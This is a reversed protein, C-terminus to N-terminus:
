VQSLALIAGFSMFIPTLAYREFPYRFGSEFSLKPSTWLLSYKWGQNSLRSSPWFVELDWLFIHGHKDRLHTGLDAKLVWNQSLWCFNINEVNTKGVKVSPWFLEYDWLFLHGHNDRLHNGLDAKLVWNQSLRCFHMNEVKTQVVKFSLWFLKLDWLFLHGHKDRLHTDLDVKLLVYVHEHKDIFRTGLDM